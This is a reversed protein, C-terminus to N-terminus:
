VGANYIVGGANYTVGGANYIVDGPNYVEINTNEALDLPCFTWNFQNTYELEALLHGNCVGRHDCGESVGETWTHVRGRWHIDQRGSLTIKDQDHHGTRDQCQQPKQTGSNM